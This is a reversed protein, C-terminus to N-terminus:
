PGRPPTHATGVHRAARPARAAGAPRPPLRLRPAPPRPARPMKAPSEPERRQSFLFWVCM